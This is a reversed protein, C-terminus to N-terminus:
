QTSKFFKARMDARGAIGSNRFFFDFFNEQLDCDIRARRRRVRSESDGFPRILLHLSFALSVDTMGFGEAASRVPQTLFRETDTYIPTLLFFSATIRM